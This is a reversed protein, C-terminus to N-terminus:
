LCKRRFIPHINVSLNESKECRTVCENMKELVKPLDAISAEIKSKLINLKELQDQDEEASSTSIIPFELTAPPRLAALRAVVADPLRTGTGRLHEFVRRDLDALGEELEDVERRLEQVEADAEDEVAGAPVKRKCHKPPAPAHSGAAM